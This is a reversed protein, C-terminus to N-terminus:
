LLFGSIAANIRIKPTWILTRQIVVATFFNEFARESEFGPRREPKPLTKPALGSPTNRPFLSMRKDVVQFVEVRDVLAGPACAHPSPCQLRHTGDRSM